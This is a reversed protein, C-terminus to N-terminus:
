DTLRSLSERLPGKKTKKTAGERALHGDIAGAEAASKAELEQKAFLTCINLREKEDGNL